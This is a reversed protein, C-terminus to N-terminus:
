DDETHGTSQQGEKPLIPIGQRQRKGNYELARTEAFLTYNSLNGSSEVGTDRREHKTNHVM